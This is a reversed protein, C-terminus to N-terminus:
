YCHRMDHRQRRDFRSNRREWRGEWLAHPLAVVSFPFNIIWDVEIMESGTWMAKARTRVEARKLIFRLEWKLQLVISSSTRKITKSGGGGKSISEGRFQIMEFVRQVFIQWQSKKDYRGTSTVWVYNVNLKNKGKKRGEGGCILRARHHDAM